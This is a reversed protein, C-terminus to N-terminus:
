MTLTRSRRASISAFSSAIFFSGRFYADHSPSTSPRVEGRKCLQLNQSFCESDLHGDKEWCFRSSLTSAAHGLSGPQSLDM